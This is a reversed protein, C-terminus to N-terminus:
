GRVLKLERRVWKSGGAAHISVYGLSRYFEAVKTSSTRNQGERQLQINVKDLMQGSDFEDLGDVFQTVIRRLPDLDKYWDKIEQRVHQPIELGTQAVNAAGLMFWKCIGVSEEDWLIKDLGQIQMSEPIKRSFYIILWRRIFAQSVDDARPPLNASFLHGAIPKITQPDEYLRRAMVEDGAVVQKLGAPDDMNKLSLDSVINIKALRFPWLKSEDNMLRPPVCTKYINPFLRSIILLLVSKGNAGVGEFCLATQAEAGRGLLCLGVFNRIFEQDRTSLIQDLFAQFKPCDDQSNWDRELMQIGITPTYPELGDLTVAGQKTYFLINARARVEDSIDFRAALNERLSKVRAFTFHIPEYVSWDPSKGDWRDIFGLYERESLPVWEGGRYRYLTKNLASIPGLERDLEAGLVRALQLDTVEKLKEPKGAGGSSKKTPKKPEEVVAKQEQPEFASISFAAAGPPMKGNDRAQELKYVLREDDWPPQCRRNWERMLDLAREFSLAFGRILQEAVRYTLLDGGQHEIAPDATAIWTRAKELHRTDGTDLMPIAPPAPVEVFPPPDLLETPFVVDTVQPAGDRVVRGLRYIRTWDKCALDPHLGREQWHCFAWRVAAEYHAPGIPSSFEAFLRFGRKTRYYGWQPDIPPDPDEDFDLVLLGFALHYGDAELTKLARKQFRMSHEPSSDGGEVWYPLFHRDDPWTAEFAERYDLCPLVESSQPFALTKRSLLTVRAM